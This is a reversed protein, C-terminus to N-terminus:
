SSSTQRGRAKYSCGGLRSPLRECRAPSFGHAMEAPMSTAALSCCPTHPLQSRERTCSGAHLPYLWPQGSTSREFTGIQLLRVPGCGRIFARCTNRPTISKLIPGAARQNSTAKVDHMHAISPARTSRPPTRDPPSASATLGRHQLGRPPCIFRASRM